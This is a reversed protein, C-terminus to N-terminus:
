EDENKGSTTDLEIMDPDNSKIRNEKAEKQELTALKESALKNLEENEQYNEIVAEIAARANFLDNRQIYIDAYLLLSKAIWYPYNTSNELSYQIQKEAIDLQGQNYNILSILFNAEASQNNRGTSIKQFAALAQENQDSNISAKGLYYYASNKEASTALSSAIVLSAYKKINENNAMRFASRMAGLAGEYKLDNSTADSELISYYLYAKPFNQTFNYSIVAAKKASKIYYDNLGENVLYEYDTLAGVFQRIIAHSEGRYFRADLRFYGKPYKNLYETLSNIASEYEGIEYKSIGNQYTLSDRTFETLEYGPITELYSFYEEPNSLDDIYIEEIALLAEQSEKPNPNNNFIEKYYSLATEVDGQNYSILGLKLYAANVLNSKDKYYTIIRNFSLGAPGPNGLSLYTDGLQLLADDAYESLPYKQTLDELLLVKEYPRALLGEILSKQYLAYVFGQQKRDISQDYFLAAEEYKNQKFLCDGARLLADPLVRDLIYKDSMEERRLNIGVVANKFHFEAKEYNDSKLYNYGQIYHGVYPSSRVPLDNYGNSKDFYIDFAEISEKHRSEANLMYALWFSINIELIDDIPYKKSKAFYIRSDGFNDENLRQIAKNYTVIQYTKKLDDSLTGLDELINISNTYDGSNLLIDNIIKRAENFYPSSEEIKVLTNIGERDYNLEASLKGYNYTAEEQMTHEFEMQSVKKFATRASNLDGIQLYCDALYYNVLQGLKSELLAIEKFNVVADPYKKLQYQSFALQYFEEQTLKPSNKEYFELHPLAKIYLGERFYAQGLLLRIEKLNRTDRIQIKNEAYTILKEFEDQAFYIQSIYYPIFSSYATSNSVREFSAVAGNFDGDFYQCMGYYYNTPYYYKNRFDRTENFLLKAEAFEKQVFHAYGRKFNAESMKEEELDSSEIKSYFYVSKDYQKENYFHSGLVLAPEMIIPDPSYLEVFDSLQKEAQPQNLILASIRAIKQAELVYQKQHELHTPKVEALFLEMEKLAPGFLKESYHAKGNKFHQFIDEYIIPTQAISITTFLCYILTFFIGKM